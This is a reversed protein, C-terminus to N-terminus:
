IRPRTPNYNQIYISKLIYISYLVSSENKNKKLRRSIERFGIM